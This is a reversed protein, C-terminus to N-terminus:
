TAIGTSANRPDLLELALASWAFHEAGMGRGDNPDYFERLGERSVTETIARAISPPTSTTASDCSDAGSSGPATSGRRGAGTADCARSISECRSHPSREGCSCSGFAAEVDFDAEGSRGARLFGLSRAKATREDRRLLKLMWPRQADSSLPALSRSGAALLVGLRRGDCADRPRQPVTRNGTLVLAVRSPRTAGANTNTCTRRPIALTHTPRRCIDSRATKLLTPSYSVPVVARRERCCVRMQGVARHSASRASLLSRYSSPSWGSSTSSETRSKNAPM